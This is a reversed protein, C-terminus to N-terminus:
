EVMGMAMLLDNSNYGEFDESDLLNQKLNNNTGILSELSVIKQRLRITDEEVDKILDEKKKFGDFKIAKLQKGEYVWKINLLKFIPSDRRIIRSGNSTQRVGSLSEIKSIDLIPSKGTEPDFGLKFLANLTKALNNNM